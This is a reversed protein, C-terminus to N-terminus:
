ILSDGVAIVILPKGRDSGVFMRSGGDSIFMLSIREPYYMRIFGETGISLFHSISDAIESVVITTVILIASMKLRMESQDSVPLIKNM